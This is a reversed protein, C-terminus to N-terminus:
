WSFLAFKNRVTIYSSISFRFFCSQLIRRDTVSFNMVNSSREVNFNDRLKSEKAIYIVFNTVSKRCKLLEPNEGGEVNMEQELLFGRV